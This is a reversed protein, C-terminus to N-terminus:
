QKRGSLVAIAPTSRQPLSSELPQREMAIRFNHWAELCDPAVELIRDCYSAAEDTESEELAVTALGQLAPLSRPHEDLLRQSHRRIEQLDNSDIGMTILNSLVEESNSDAALLQEYVHRSEDFRNLLQLAVAVGFLPPGGEEGDSAQTFHGLAEETRNSHLLCLGLGVRAESYGADLQLVLQFVEAATDWRGAKQLCLALNYHAKANDPESSVVSFYSLAADQFRGLAFEIEGRLASDHSTLERGGGVLVDLAEALQGASRLAMVNEIRRM